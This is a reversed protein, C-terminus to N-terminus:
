LGLINNSDKGYDWNYKDCKITVRSKSIKTIIGTRVESWKLKTFVVRQGVHLPKNQIDLAEEM